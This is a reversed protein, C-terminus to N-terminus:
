ARSTGLDDQIGYYVAEAEGAPMLGAVDDDLASRLDDLAKLAVRAARGQRGTKPYSLVVANLRQRIVHLEAACQRHQDLTFGPFKPM